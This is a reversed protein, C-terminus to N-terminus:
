KIAEDILKSVEEGKVDAPAHAAGSRHMLFYKVGIAIERLSGGIEKLLEGYFDYKKEVETHKVKGIQEYKTKKAEWQRAETSAEGTPEIKLGMKKAIEVFRDFDSVLLEREWEEKAKRVEKMEEEIDKLRTEWMRENHRILDEYRKEREEMWRLLPDMQWTPTLMKIAEAMEKVGGGGGRGALLMATIPSVSGKSAALLMAARKAEDDSLEKALMHVEPMDMGEGGKPMGEPLEGGLLKEMPIGTKQSYQWIRYLMRSKSEAVRLKRLEKTEEELEQLALRELEEEAREEMIRQRRRRAARLKDLEDEEDNPNVVAM